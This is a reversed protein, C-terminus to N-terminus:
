VIHIRGGGNKCHKSATKDRRNPNESQDIAASTRWDATGSMSPVFWPARRRKRIDMIDPEAQRRCLHARGECVERRHRRHGPRIGYRQGMSRRQRQIRRRSRQMRLYPKGKSSTKRQADNGITGSPAAEISM